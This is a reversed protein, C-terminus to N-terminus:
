DRSKIIAGDSSGVDGNNGNQLEAPKFFYSLLRTSVVETIKETAKGTVISTAIKLVGQGVNLVAYAATPAVTAVTTLASKTKEWGYRGAQNALQQTGLQIAGLSIKTVALMATDTLALYVAQPLTATCDEDDQHQQNLQHYRWTFSITYCSAYYAATTVTRRFWRDYGLQALQHDVSNNIGQLAGYPATQQATEWIIDLLTPPLIECIDELSLMDLQSLAHSFIGNAEIVNHSKANESRCLIPAGYLKAYGVEKENLFARVTFIPEGTYSHSEIMPEIVAHDFLQQGSDHINPRIAPVELGKVGQESMDDDIQDHEGFHYSMLWSALMGLNMKNHSAMLAVFIMSLELDFYSPKLQSSASTQARVLNPNIPQKLIAARKSKRAKQLDTNDDLLKLDKCLQDFGKKDHIPILSNQCEKVDQIAEERKGLAYYSRARLYQVNNLTPGILLAKSFSKVADEHKNFNQNLCGQEFHWRAKDQAFGECLNLLHQAVIPEGFQSYCKSLQLCSIEKEKKQNVSETPLQSVFAYAEFAYIDQFIDPLIGGLANFVINKDEQAVPASPFVGDKYSSIANEPSPNGDTIPSPPNKWYCAFPLAKVEGGSRMILGMVRMTPNYRKQDHEIIKGPIYEEALFYPRSSALWGGLELMKEVHQAKSLNPYKHKIYGM